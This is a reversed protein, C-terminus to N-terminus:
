SADDGKEVIKVITANKCFTRTRFEIEQNSLLSVGMVSYSSETKEAKTQVTILLNIYGPYECYILEGSENVEGTSEIYPEYEVSLIKGIEKNTTHAYVIEDKLLFDSKIKNDELLVIGFDEYRLKEVKIQYEVTVAKDQSVTNDAFFVSYVVFGVLGLVALILVIDIFTLRKKTNVKKAM